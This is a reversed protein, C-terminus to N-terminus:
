LKSSPAMRWVRGSQPKRARLQRRLIKGAASKPITDVVEVEALWKARAKRESVYQMISQATQQSNSTGVQLVVFAKPREGSREDSIGCVAIDSVAPHSLLLQEIEAPAVGIGKVKIMEKARDTIHLMGESDMMGIDGTHLFGDADFAEATATANNLYGMAIQPGRAWIEGEEGVGMEKCSEMNVIKLETSAVLMGVKDANRYAYKSPPHSTIASCSESLGYGQKFGSGPFHSELEELIAKPLPAAGSSFRKVHSLDYRSLVERERVMRLLIPPVVLLERVRYKSATELFTDLTYKSLVYVNANLAIPLAFQHILGTVHYYPLGGMVKDHDSPTIQQVQLCQAIVNAHSIQVAKPLGTTGSSFCLFACLRTNSRGPTIRFTQAQSKEGAAKGASILNDFGHTGVVDGDFLVVHSAEMGCNKAAIQAAELKDQTTFICKAQSLELCHSLEESSYDPSVGCAVVGLRLAALMAVPYQIANRSYVLAVDGERLTLVRQLATSLYKARLSVDQYSCHQETLADTLGKTASNTLKPNDFLWSWLTVDQPM